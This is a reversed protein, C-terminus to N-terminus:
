EVQRSPETPNIPPVHGAAIAAAGTAAAEQFELWVKPLAPFRPPSANLFYSPRSLRMPEVLFAGIM